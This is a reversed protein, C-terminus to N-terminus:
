VTSQLRGASGFVRTKFRQSGTVPSLMRWDRCTKRREKWKEQWGIVSEVAMHTRPSGGTQIMSNPRTATPTNIAISTQAQCQFRRVLMVEVGNLAQEGAVGKIKGAEIQFTCVDGAHPLPDDNFYPHFLRLQEDGHKVRIETYTALVGSYALPKVVSEVRVDTLELLGAQEAASAFGCAMVAAVAVFLLTKTM